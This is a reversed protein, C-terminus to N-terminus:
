IILWPKEARSGLPDKVPCSPYFDTRFSPCIEPNICYKFLETLDEDVLVDIGREYARKAIREVCDWLHFGAVRLINVNGLQSLVFDPDPYIKQKRHEELSLGVKIIRDRERLQISDFIPTDDFVAFNIGFDKQRYRLDIAQNMLSFYRKAYEEAERGKKPWAGNKIEFEFIDKLPYLFIFQKQKAAEM